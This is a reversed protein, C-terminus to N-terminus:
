SCSLIHQQPMIKKTLPLNISAVTQVPSMALVIDRIKVSEQYSGASGVRILKKVQYSNILEHAYISISPVGMGSGQVSVRKGKYMGTFGLM